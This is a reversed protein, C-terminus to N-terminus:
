RPPETSSGAPDDAQRGPADSPARLLLALGLAFLVLVVTMGARQSGTGATVIAVLAPGVFTTVKGSLAYVGFLEHRLSEPAMRALYSRSAAQVPGVFLGVVAASALFVPRSPSLVVVVGGVLLGVLAIAASQRGGLRDDVGSFLWAGLAAAVSIGIGFRLVEAETMEFTGAAYVGGFAFLTALGDAYLMRAILFRVIGAHRRVDRVTAALQRLGAGVAERLPRGAGPAEPTAILLPAAFVAYWGAALLCTARVPLGRAEDLEIWASDRLFVFLAVLLCLVGGVYGLGWGFGSWRGVRGRPALEPLLANYFVNALSSGASAFVILLLALWVDSREPAVLWLGATATVSLATFGALWPKRRGGEDAIAGLVPGGVAVFFGAVAIAAGWLSTGWAADGAVRATFYAAFVFTQIVTAYGANAWDYFAWAVLAGRGASGEQEPATAPL